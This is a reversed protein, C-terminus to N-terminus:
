AAGEQPHARLIAIVEDDEVQPFDRYFQGVAHFGLPAILCVVQDAYRVVRNLTEPPAVPVACVLKAPKQARLATLATVMTAGTALGDDVVIVTRDAVELPPRDTYLRRRERLVALQARALDDVYSRYLGLEGAFDNLTIRGTEDIAGIALESQFPAGLKRVLVVDLDGGLESAILRAMPVAGRPIAIVLPQSTRYGALREALLGAAHTRNTFM